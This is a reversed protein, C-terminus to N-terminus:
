WVLTRLRVQSRATTALLVDGAQVGAAAAHGGPVVEDVLISSGQEAPM